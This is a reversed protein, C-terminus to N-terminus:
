TFDNGCFGVCDGPNVFWSAYPYSSKATVWLWTKLKIQEMLESIVVQKEKFLLENRANWIVWITAYWVLEWIDRQEKSGLLIGLFHFYHVKCSDFLPSQFGWWHLCEYWVASFLECRFFLHNTTEIHDKNCGRCQANQVSLNRKLLNQSTLIRDQALKWVFAKVKLPAGSNWLKRNFEEDGMFESVRLWTYTSRVSYIGSLDKKWVWKGDRAWKLGVNLILQQLEMLRELEWQFLTRRWNWEREVSGNRIKVIDSILGNKDLIISFLREFRKSLVEGELWPKHWLLTDGGSGVEKRTVSSFWNQKIGNGGVEIKQLDSWWRSQFRGGVKVEGGEEGFKEKFLKM